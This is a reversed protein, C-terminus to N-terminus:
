IAGNRCSLCDYVVSGEFKNAFRMLLRGLWNEGKGTALDMGWYKDGWTNGEILWADGTRLLMLKLEDDEFKRFLIKCMIVKKVIDWNPRLIVKQGFRKARGPTFNSIDFRDRANLTKMAQYANESSPWTYGRWIFSKLDFNSLFNYDGKFESIIKAQVSM